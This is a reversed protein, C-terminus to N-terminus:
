LTKIVRRGMNTTTQQTMTLYDVMSSLNGINSTDESELAKEFEDDSDHSMNDGDDSVCDLSNDLFRPGDVKEKTDVMGEKSNSANVAVRAERLAGSKGM